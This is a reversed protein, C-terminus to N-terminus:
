NLVSELNAKAEVVDVKEGFFVNLLISLTKVVCPESLLRKLVTVLVSFKSDSPLISEVIELLSVLLDAYYKVDEVKFTM